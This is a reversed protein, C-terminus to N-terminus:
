IHSVTYGGTFVVFEPLQLIAIDNTLAQPNWGEHVSINEKSVLMEICGTENGVSNQCGLRVVM